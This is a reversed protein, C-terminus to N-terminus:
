SEYLQNLYINVIVNMNVASNVAQLTTFLGQAQGFASEAIDLTFFGADNNQVLIEWGDLSLGIEGAHIGGLEEDSMAYSGTPAPDDYIVAKALVVLQPMASVSELGAPEPEGALTFPTASALAQFAALPQEQTLVLLAGPGGDVQDPRELVQLPEPQVLAQPGLLTLGVLMSARWLVGTLQSLLTTM